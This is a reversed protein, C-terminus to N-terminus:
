LYLIQKRNKRKTTYSVHIWRGGKEWILQDFDMKRLIEFLKKNDGSSIDAAEGITHQSNKAGGVHRNLKSNRYGSSIIIPMKLRERAPDLVKEVLTEINEIVEKEKGTDIRNDIETQTAFFEQLLFYRM